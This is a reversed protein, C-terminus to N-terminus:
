WDWEDEDFSNPSGDGLILADDRNKAMERFSEAWGERVNGKRIVLWDGEAYIQVEGTLGTQDLLAKPIVVGKDSGITVIRTRM